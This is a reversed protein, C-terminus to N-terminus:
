PPAELRCLAQRLSAAPAERLVKSDKVRVRCREASSSSMDPQFEAALYNQSQKENLTCDLLENLGVPILMANM